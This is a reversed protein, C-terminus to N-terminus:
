GPGGGFTYGRSSRQRRQKVSWSSEDGFVDHIHFLWSLGISTLLGIILTVVWQTTSPVISSSLYEFDKMPKRKHYAVINSRLKQTMVEPTLPNSITFMDDRLKVVFTKDTTWTMVESWMVMMDARVGVVLVVDNKKAGIWAEELAYYWERHEENVLVVIINVQRPSGIEANLKELAINWERANPVSLGVTVLRDLKYYDYIRDPYKPITSAYKEIAGQRKFLTGPAGKVYNVYSHEVATPEGLAVAAWRAPEHNGQRDVRNITITESNSTYVDWDWDNSHEYCTDCTTSCSRNSGSGTCTERCNCQYSHSCSVWVKKKSVVSGNWVETDHTNACSVIGAAIGAIALQVVIQVLFEKWTIERSTLFCGLAVLVPVMAIIAFFAM